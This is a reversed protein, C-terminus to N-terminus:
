YYRFTTLTYTSVYIDKAQVNKTKPKIRFTVSLYNVHTGINYAYKFPFHVPQLTYSWM